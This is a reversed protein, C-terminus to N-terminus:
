RTFKFSASRTTGDTFMLTLVRCTSAWSKDTKWVYNYQQTIADYALSSGGASVTETLAEVPASTDCTVRESKPYGSAFITLGQDGGLGFKVPVASGAKLLNVEPQNQVPSFFGTFTFTSAPESEFAGIDIRGNKVRAYGVDRQDYLLNADSFAPDGADIAPSGALLAHTLTAGGHNALPGLQATGGILNFGLNNISGIVDNATSGDTTNGAIISHKVDVISPNWEDVSVGAGNPARNATVTTHTLELRVSLCGCVGDYTFIGGGSGGATNGSITSNRIVGTGHFGGGEHVSQNGSITSGLILIDTESYGFIGGAGDAKNDAITSNRIVARGSIFLGGGACCSTNGIIRSNTIELEAPFAMIGAGSGGSNGSITCNNVVLKGVTAVLIGNFSNNTVACDALTLNTVLPWQWSVNIGGGVNATGKGGTITLGSISITNSGGLNFIGFNPASPDRRVTLQSAGPGQITVTRAISLTGSTLTVTAPLTLSFTILTCAPDDVAARLTGTGADGTSTVVCEGPLLSHRLAPVGAPDQDVCATLPLLILARLAIRLPTNM